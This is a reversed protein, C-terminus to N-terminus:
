PLNSSVQTPLPAFRLACAHRGPAPLLERARAAITRARARLYKTPTSASNASDTALFNTWGFDRCVPMSSYPLNSSSSRSTCPLPRSSTMMSLNAFHPLTTSLSLQGSAQSPLSSAWFINLTAWYESSHTIVLDPDTPGPM